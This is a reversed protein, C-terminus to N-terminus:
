FDDNKFEIGNKKLFDFHDRIILPTEVQQGNITVTGNKCIFRGEELVVNPIYIMRGVSFAVLKFNNPLDSVVVNKDNIIIIEKKLTNTGIETYLFSANDYRIPKPREETKDFVFLVNVKFKSM